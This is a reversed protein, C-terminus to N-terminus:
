EDTVVTDGVTDRAPSRTAAAFDVFHDALGEMTEKVLEKVASLARTRCAPTLAQQLDTHGALQTQMAKLRSLVDAPALKLTDESRAVEAWVTAWTSLCGRAHYTCGDPRQFTPARARIHEWLRVLSWHGSLLRRRQTETLPPLDGDDQAASTDSDPSDDGSANPDHAIDRPDQFGDGMELLQVYYAAGALLQLGHADAIALARRPHLVRALIRTVWEVQTLLTLDIHACRLAVELTRSLVPYSVVSSNKDPEEYATKLVRHASSIAWNSISSFHYKHTMSAITLLHLINEADGELSSLEHPLAYLVSLLARFNEASDGFLRIPNADDSGELTHSASAGRPLSFMDAFASGDRQLLFRHVRFLTDEVRFVCDGDDFYYKADRTAPDLRTVSKSCSGLLLVEDDLHVGM